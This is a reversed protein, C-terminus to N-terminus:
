SSLSAKQVNTITERKTVTSQISELIALAAIVRANRIAARTAAPSPCVNGLWSVHTVGKLNQNILHNPYM